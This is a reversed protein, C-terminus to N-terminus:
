NNEEFERLMKAYTEGVTKGMDPRVERCRALYAKRYAEEAETLHTKAGKSLIRGINPFEKAVKKMTDITDENSHWAKSLLAAREPHTKHFELQEQRKQERVDPNKYYEQLSESRKKNAEDTHSNANAAAELLAEKREPHAAFVEQMLKSQKERREPHEKYFKKLRESQAMRKEPNAWCEDLAAKHKKKNEPNSFYEKMKESHQKKAEPNNTQYKKAAESMASKAAPNSSKYLRIYLNDPKKINLTDAINLIANGSLGFWKSKDSIGAIEVYFKKLFTLSLNDLTLGEIEGAAIKKISRMDYTINLDKADIVDKFEPFLMKAEDLTKSEKLPAYAENHIEYLTKKNAPNLLAKNALEIVKKSPFQGPLLRAMQGQLDLAKGKFSLYYEPPYALNGAIITKELAPTFKKNSNNINNKYLNNNFNIKPFSIQM